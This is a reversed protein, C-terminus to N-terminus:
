LSQVIQEAADLDAVRLISRAPTEGVPPALYGYLINVNKGAFAAALDRFANPRGNLTVTLVEADVIPGVGADMLHDMAERMAEPPTGLLRTVGKGEHTHVALAEVTVGAATCSELLGALAGPRDDLYVTFETQREHHM